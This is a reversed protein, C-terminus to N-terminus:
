RTLELDDFGIKGNKSGHAPGCRLEIWQVNSLDIGSGNRTFDELRIRITEFENGWGVGAGCGERQYPSEIGGGYAGTGIFSSAGSKDVLGVDFEQDGLWALNKPDRTAQCARFSLYRYPSLDQHGAVLGFKMSLDAGLWSFTIGATTDGNGGVTMGNMPSGDFTFVSNPDDMRGEYLDDFESVVPGGSSSTDTSPESQFDDVVFRDPSAAPNYQLNVVVCDTEPVGPSHFHEWQRWLFDEAALSGETYRKVLPLLYSKMLQHTEDRSLLCPGDAFLEGPGDHFAGHGVGYLCISQRNGTARDLLHYSQCLNCDACGNVDSDAAGVWLHYNVGHPNSSTPGLFDTPAISSVLVIDSLEFTTPVYSGDYIRSYARVVGEGGRSHGIWVIRHKDVHGELAGGAITSLHSLFYETNTLTTTSATEIGPGTQNTHSMVICGYSALHYGIHDYWTYLHGNGHSVVVLPLNRLSAVNTPYYLDQGLWQGGSYITETVALPGPVQTPRVIFFGPEGALGDIWDGADLVGNGNTDLVVDYPEGFETGANGRLFSTNQLLITDSQVDAGSFTAPQPAPRVDHLTRDLAWAVPEKHQVVYVNGQWGLIHPARKPDVAISIPAGEMFTRVYEFHPYADLPNGALEARIVGPFEHTEGSTEIQVSSSASLTSARATLSMGLFAAAGIWPWARLRHLM